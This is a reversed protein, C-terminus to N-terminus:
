ARELRGPHLAILGLLAIAAVVLSATSGALMYAVLALLAAGELPAWAIIAPASARTWYLDASEDTSRQPVRGRLVLFSLASAALSLGLLIAVASAPLSGTRQPRILFYNVIAFLILGAVLSAHILRVTTAPRVDQSTAMYHFHM